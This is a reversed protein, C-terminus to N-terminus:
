KEVASDGGGVGSKRCGIDLVEVKIIRERGKSYMRKGILM